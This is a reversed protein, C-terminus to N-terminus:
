DNNNKDKFSLYSVLKDSTDIVSQNEYKIGLNRIKSIIDLINKTKRNQLEQLSALLSILCKDIRNCLLILKLLQKLEKVHSMKEFAQWRESINLQREERYHTYLNRRTCDIHTTLEELQKEVENSMPNTVFESIGKLKHWISESKKDDNYGYLQTLAAIEFRYIRHLCISREIISSAKLYSDMSCILDSRMFTIIWRIEVLSQLYKISTTDLRQQQLFSIGVDCQSFLKKMSEVETWAELIQDSIITKLDTKKDFAEAIQSNIFTQIEIDTQIRTKHETTNASPINSFITTFITNTLKLVKDHIEMQMGLRIAYEDESNLTLMKQYMQSPKDYHATMNRLDKDCNGGLTKILLRLDQLYTNTVDDNCDKLFNILRVLVGNGDRGLFYKCWEYQCLNIMQMHYRKAYISDTQLMNQLGNFGEYMGSLSGSLLEFVIQLFELATGEITSISEFITKTDEIKELLKESDYIGRKSNEILVAVSEPSAPQKGM